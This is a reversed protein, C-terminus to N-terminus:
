RALAAPGYTARSVRRIGGEREAARLAETFRGPGWYRAGVARALETRTLEGREALVQELTDVEQELARAAAEPRSSFATGIM